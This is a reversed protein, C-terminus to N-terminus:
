VNPAVNNKVLQVMTDWRVTNVDQQASVHHVNPVVNINVDKVM